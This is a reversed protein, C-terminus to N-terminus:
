VEAILEYIVDVSLASLVVNAGLALGADVSMTVSAVSASSADGASATLLPGIFVGGGGWGTEIALLHEEVTGSPLGSLRVLLESVTTM